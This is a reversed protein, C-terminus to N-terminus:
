GNQRRELIRKITKGIEVFEEYSFEDRKTFNCLGCCVVCNSMTYPLSSDVRDLNYAHRVSWDIHTECYHCSDINTFSLFDEYTLENLQGAEKAKSLFRRYLAEFPRLQNKQIVLKSSIKRSCSGCLNSRRNEAGRQVRLENKCDTKHCKYIYTYTKIKNGKKGVYIKEETRLLNANDFKDWNGGPPRLGAQELRKLLHEADELENISYWIINLMESRKM